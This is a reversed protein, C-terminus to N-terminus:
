RRSHTSRLRSLERRLADRKLLVFGLLIVVFGAATTIDARESLLIAGVIAAVIPAVYSVLNIEVPGLRALLDFYILFGVASAGLSLYALAAIAAPSWTVASLSEGLLGASVVHMLIAGGLM